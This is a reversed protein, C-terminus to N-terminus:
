RSARTCFRPMSVVRLEVDLLVWLAVAADLAHLARDPNVEDAGQQPEDRSHGDKAVPPFVAIRARLKGSTGVDLYSPPQRAVVNPRLLQQRRYVITRGPNPVANTCRARSVVQEVSSKTPTNMRKATLKSQLPPVIIV